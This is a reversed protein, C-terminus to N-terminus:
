VGGPHKLSAKDDSLLRARSLLLLGAVNFETAPLMVDKLDQFANAVQCGGQASVIGYPYKM